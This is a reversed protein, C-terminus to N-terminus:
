GRASSPPPSAIAVGAHAAIALIEEMAPPGAGRRGAADMDRFMREIGAGPMCFVLMRAEASGENRFAHQGGRPGFFFSGAGLRLPAPRDASDLVIEGSLVYFAEDEREHTHPPVSAGPPVTCEVCCFANGTEASTAKFVYPSGLVNIAPGEGAVRAISGHTAMEKVAQDM